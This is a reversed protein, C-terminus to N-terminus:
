FRIAMEMPETGVTFKASEFQPPGMTMENGSMGYGELPMGNVDFDMQKNENVDHMALIAYEGQMVNDFTLTAKGNEITSELNQIGPGKMFTDKQHLSVMVKGEDNVLNPIRVTIRTGSVQANAMFSVLLTAIMFALKEM